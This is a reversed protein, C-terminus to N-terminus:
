TIFNHLLLQLLGTVPLLSLLFAYLIKIPCDLSLLGRLIGLRLRSLILIFRVEGFIMRTILDLLSLHVSRTARILLPATFVPNQHPFMLSPSWKSSEPTSPLIINFVSRRSTVHPCPSSRHPESYLFTAPQQSHPLSGEPEVFHPSNRSYPWNAEWSPSQQM